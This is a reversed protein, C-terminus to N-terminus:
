IMILHIISVLTSHFGRIINLQNKMVSLGSIIESATFIKSKPYKEYINLYAMRIFIYGTCFSDWGAEHFKGNSDGSDEDEEIAPSNLVLHRGVGNKFYDFISELGKEKWKKDKSIHKKSTYYAVVRTDFIVPFLENALKKFKDYSNPLPQEFSQIMLLLDQFLNHGILPKKLSTLLRFVKSFGLFHSIVDDELKQDFKLRVSDGVSIKKVIFDNEISTWVNKLQRRIYKHMFYLIECNQKYKEYFETLKISDGEKATNCWNKLDDGVFKEYIEQLETEFISDGECIGSKFNIKLANEEIKNLFPIGSYVFQFAVVTIKKIIYKMIYYYVKNFNFGHYQLFALTGSQFCFSKEITPFSTPVLYFNYITGIYNGTNRNCNFATLGIQLPIVVEVNKRQKDYRESNTDFM